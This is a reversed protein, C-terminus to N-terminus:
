PLIVYGKSYRCASKKKIEEKDFEAQKFLDLLNNASYETMEDVLHERIGYALSM